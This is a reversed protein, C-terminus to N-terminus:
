IEGESVCDSEEVQLLIIMTFFMYFSSLGPSDLHGNSDPVLYPPVGPLEQLWLYHGAHTLVPSNIVGVTTCPPSSNKAGCRGRDGGWAGPIHKPRHGFHSLIKKKKNSILRGRMFTFGNIM